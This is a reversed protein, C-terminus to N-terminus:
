FKLRALPMAMASTVLQFGTVGLAVLTSNAFALLFKGRQWADKYNVWSWGHRLSLEPTVLLRLSTFCVVGLPLLVEELEWCYCVVSV